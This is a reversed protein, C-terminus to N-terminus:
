FRYRAELTWTPPQAPFGFIQYADNEGDTTRNEWDAVSLKPQLLHEGRLTLTLNDRVRWTSGLALDNFHTRSAGLQAPFGGFNEYRPGFWSWRVDFRFAGLTKHGKLGLSNFPRRIV